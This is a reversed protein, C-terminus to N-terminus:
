LKIRPAADKAIFEAIKSAEPYGQQVLEDKATSLADPFIGCLQVYQQWGFMEPLGAQKAANRIDTATVDDIRRSECLSVGMERALGPYITTCTVDYIPSLRCGTWDRRWLISHNKLHNDCNGILFDFIIHNFFTARDGFPNVVSRNIIGAALALYHGDTPEYKLYSRLGAAQCMDEQHLRRPMKHGDLLSASDPIVRDFRKVALLPDSGDIPILFSEAVELACHRAVALCFAENITQLPFTGDSAKIIHTSPASGQPLFWGTLPNDDEHYLGIKAQAGALSLRSAMGLELAVRRPLTAFLQLDQVQEVTYARSATLEAETEGFLLAGVSENNLRSLIESYADTGQHFAAAFLGRMEGEPLLGDFFAFTRDVPFAGEQLPFALSIAKADASSLYESTYSFALGHGAQALRDPKQGIPALLGVQQYEGNYERFINLRGDMM